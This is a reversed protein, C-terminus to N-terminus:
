IKNLAVLILSLKLILLKQLQKKLLKHKNYKQYKEDKLVVNKEWINDDLGEKQKNVIMAFRIM